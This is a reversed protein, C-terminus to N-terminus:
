KQNFSKGFIKKSDNMLTNFTLEDLKYTNLTTNTSEKDYKKVIGNQTLRVELDLKGKRNQDIIQVLNKADVKKPDYTAIEYEEKGKRIIIFGFDTKLDPNRMKLHEMPQKPLVNIGWKSKKNIREMEKIFNVGHGDTKNNSVQWVHIMEHALVSLLEEQTLKFQRSIGLHDIKKSKDDWKLVGLETKANNWRLEVNPLKNGWFHKNLKSYWKELNFTRPNIFNNTREFLKFSTLYKMFYINNNENINKMTGLIDYGVGNLIEILNKGCELHISDHTDDEPFYYVSIDYASYYVDEGKYIENGIVYISIDDFTFLAKVEEYSDKTLDKEDCNIVYKIKFTKLISKIIHVAEEAGEWYLNKNHKINM